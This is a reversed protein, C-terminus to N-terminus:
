HTATLDSLLGRVLLDIDDRIQRAGNLDQGAPDEITWDLYRKGPYIPCSDGCGMTVVVDAARVVDDTLPKPFEESLDVVAEALAAVISPELLDAGYPLSTLRPEAWGTPELLRRSAPDINHRWPSFLRIHRWKRVAAGIQDGSEFILPTIGREILHAATALGVPGAGIIAVPLDHRQETMDTETMDTETM